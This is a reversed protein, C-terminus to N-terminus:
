KMYRWHMAENHTNIEKPRYVKNNQKESNRDDICILISLIGFQIQMRARLFIRAQM